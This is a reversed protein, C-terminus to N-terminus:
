NGTGRVSDIEVLETVYGGDAWTRDEGLREM